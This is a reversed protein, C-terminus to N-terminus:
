DIYTREKTIQNIIVCRMPNHKCQAYMVNYSTPMLKKMFIACPHVNM